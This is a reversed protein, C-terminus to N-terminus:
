LGYKEKLYEDVYEGDYKETPIIGCLADIAYSKKKTTKEAPTNAIIYMAYRKLQETLQELNNFHPPIQVSIHITTTQM